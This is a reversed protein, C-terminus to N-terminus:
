DSLANVADNCDPFIRFIETFGSIQFVEFINEQMKCLMFKGNVENIKKLFMLFIRLGSSSIYDLKECNVIIHYVKRNILDQLKQELEQYNTTDLRGTIDIITYDDNLNEVLEMKNM